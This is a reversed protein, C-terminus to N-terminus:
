SGDATSEADPSDLDPYDSRFLDKMEDSVALFGQEIAKEFDIIVLASDEMLEQLDSDAHAYFEAINRFHFVTHREAARRLFVAVDRSLDTRAEIRAVLEETKRSDALDAVSPCEGTPVYVPSKIKRSYNERHDEPMDGDGAWEDPEDDLDSAGVKANVDSDFADALGDLSFGTLEIEFGEVDLRELETSVLELDWRTGIEGLRNDALVYARRQTDTLHALDITPVEDMGLKQAAMLRGHGAIVGNEGDLLIPNNFGFEKISAAIASIQEPAHKKANGVYPILADAPRYEVKLREGGESDQRELTMGDSM